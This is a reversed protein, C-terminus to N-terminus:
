EGASAGLELRATLLRLAADDVAAADLRGRSIATVVADVVASVEVPNVFLLLTTGAALAAVANRAPDRYARVGSRQLMGLDDSVIIGDFGLEERLVRHWEPSLSAPRRDVRPFALHGMMVLEAGADIGAEFPPAQETRWREPGMSSTPIGVHSDDATAGHGPFHKLTSLVAGREGAVAAAVRPSAARADDGLVRSRIFSGPDATVDAVIGFNVSIGAGRVLAARAAFADTARAPAAARLQPAAPGDDGPLRRVDGGEQDVAILLPLEPDASLSASTRALRALDPPVNDALYIVGGAGTRAVEARLRRGDTGPVHIMVLSAVRERLSMDALRARAAQEIPDLPPATPTPTASPRPMASRDAGGSAPAPTTCGALAALVGIAALARTLARPRTM